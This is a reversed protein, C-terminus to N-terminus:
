GAKAEAAAVDAGKAKADAIQLEVAEIQSLTSKLEEWKRFIERDFIRNVEDWQATALALDYDLLDLDVAWFNDAGGLAAIAHSAM